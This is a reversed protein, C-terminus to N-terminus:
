HKIIIPNNSPNSKLSEHNEILFTIAEKFYIKSENDFITKQLNAQNLHNQLKGRYDDDHILRLTIDVYEDLNTAILEELGVTRLMQCGIRGYWKDGEVAVVLNRLYLSDAVINSGGFHVPDLTLDGEEMIEMYDTYAKGELVEVNDAGLFETVDKSFAVFSSNHLIGSSFLRFLISKESKEIITRLFRLTRHNTKPAAWSCNIIFEPWTKQRNQITYSPYNHICGFGPLLVLRESYKDQCNTPNEVDLGSIFYDIESGSTTVPHGTGCIQIPALRINSLLISEDSMGVDPYYVVMFDNDQISNLPIAGAQFKLTKITDFPGIPLERDVDGTYILTIDYDPKLSEVYQSLTRYVSHGSHWRSTIVAIKKPNPKNCIGANKVHNGNRIVQNIKQKIRRDEDGDIYTSGFYICSLNFYDNIRADKYLLHQKLNKQAIPNVLGSTYLGFFHSYWQCALHSHLTFLSEYNIQLQSRGSLLILYKAIYEPQKQLQILYSDATKFDSLFILNSLIANTALFHESHKLTLQYDPQIFIHLFIGIFNNISTQLELDIHHNIRKDLAFISQLLAESVQEYKQELYLPLIQRASSVTTIDNSM